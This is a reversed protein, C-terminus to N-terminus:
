ILYQKERMKRIEAVPDIPEKLHKSIIKKLNEYEKDYEEVSKHEHDYALNKIHMRDNHYTFKAVKYPKRISFPSINCYYLIIEKFKDYFEVLALQNKPHILVLERFDKEKHSIKYKFPITKYEDTKFDIEIQRKVVPKNKDFGFLLKIILELGPDDKDWSIAKDNVHIRNTILFHYFHRNSFTVPIEFPLVDSLVVREKKINIQKIKRKM